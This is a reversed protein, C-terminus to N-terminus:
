SPRWGLGINVDGWNIGTTQTLMSAKTMTMDPPSVYMLQRHMVELKMKNQESMEINYEMSIYEALAYRLYEIYSTAYYLTMDTSLDVDTLFFKGLARLPYNGAPLFYMYVDLGNTARLTTFNFPLSSVNDVRGSGFYVGPSVYNMAYRVTGINFTLTQLAACNPFFYKEQGPVTILTTDYTFFPILDIEVQKFDLLANLLSLGDTIQEGSVTQAGRAVVGSLYMSRTILQQATYVM